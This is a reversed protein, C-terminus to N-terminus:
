GIYKAAYLQGLALGGDNPPINEHCYVKFGSHTLRKAANETLCANQFCGGSLVITKQGAMLAIAQIIEALTNHFKAAILEAPNHQMDELLQELTIKWDVIIPTKAQIRFDYHLESATSAASQELAMAAQGEYGNIHCLGLLSAIADFLRGASTTRPCNLERSLASQLLNLEQASFPLDQREFVSTGFTEYLLGLAARRPEQIAKHGGPLSFPAFHAYREFGQKHIILFEGGWLTNDTGLGSGDWCIGLVPPELGHEAMCSLAHAYHHQVPLTSQPLNAAFRSSAYGGHLDHMIRTPTIQYFDQLDTLTAQFQQQTAEVDLDGLHQSVIIHNEHSIAVTNKLQGGLALTDPMATKLAIPLPAYGRARRLVTIKGNILRVVSDDLPRLIPRDHTLFYDAIGALRTLAQQEDICIPENHRNGSTAVLVHLPQEASDKSLLLHHLPSYPLMVGLLNSGPAVASTLAFPRSFDGGCATDWRNLLVIPAAASSLTQQELANIKCLQQATGLDAVMLAFPKQPRHKRLRLREVAQQNSADVLLQYGGIGKIAVIKGNQLQGIAERLADHKEALLNRSEDLLSLNPGCNPCAITQAHFRRNDIAQYDKFCAPCSKFAAMGTRSRDYPQRTMLSYRPGCHCCSTFPYRYYRSAPDFIDRVCDPCVAIDPLVFASQKDDTKSAKIQFDDFGALPLTAISLSDIKAFPPLQNHLNDLFDQQHESLGEIDITIGSGTNAVWGKQRHQRALRVIFPRFGLGQVFGKINIKLHAKNINFGKTM